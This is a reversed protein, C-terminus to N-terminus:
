TNCLFLVSDCINFSFDFRKRVTTCLSSTFLFSYTQHYYIYMYTVINDDTMFQICLILAFRIFIYVAEVVASIHIRKEANRTNGCVSKVTCIRCAKCCDFM